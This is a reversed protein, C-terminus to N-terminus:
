PKAKAEGFPIPPTKAKSAALIQSIGVATSSTDVGYLLSVGQTTTAQTTVGTANQATSANRAAGGLLSGGGGSLPNTTRQNTVANQQGDNNSAPRQQAQAASAALALAVTIAITRM